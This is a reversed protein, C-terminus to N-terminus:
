YVPKPDQRGTFPYVTDGPDFKVILAWYKGGSEVELRHGAAGASFGVRLARDLAAKDDPSEPKFEGTFRFRMVRLPDTHEVFRVNMHGFAIIDGSTFDHVTCPANTLEDPFDGPM